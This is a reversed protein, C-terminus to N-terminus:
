VKSPPQKAHHKIFTRIAQKQDTSLGVFKGARKRLVETDSIKDVSFDSITEFQLQDIKVNTGPIEICIECCDTERMDCDVYFFAMGGLSIDVIPGYTENINGMFKFRGRPKKAHVLANKVIKIRKNKRRDLKAVM